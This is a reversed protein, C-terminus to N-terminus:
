AVLQGLARPQGDPRGVVLNLQDTVQNVVRNTFRRVTRPATVVFWMGSLVYVPLKTIVSQM